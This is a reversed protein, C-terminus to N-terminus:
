PGPANPLLGQATAMALADNLATALNPLHHVSLTLGKGPRLTGDEGPYWTRLDITNRGKYQDLRVQITERSNRPWAAVVHPLASAMAQPAGRPLKTALTTSLGSPGEQSMQSLQASTM